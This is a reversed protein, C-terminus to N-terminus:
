RCVTDLSGGCWTVGPMRYSGSAGFVNPAAGCFGVLGGEPGGGCVDWPCSPMGRCM